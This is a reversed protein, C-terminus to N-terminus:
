IAHAIKLSIWLLLFHGGGIELRYATMRISEKALPFSVM